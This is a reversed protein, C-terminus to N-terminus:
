APDPLQRSEPVIDILTFPLKVGTLTAMLALGPLVVQAPLVM